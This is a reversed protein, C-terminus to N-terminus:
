KARVFKYEGYDFYEMKGTKKEKRKVAVGLGIARIVDSKLKIPKKNTGYYYYQEVSGQDRGLQEIYIGNPHKIEPM